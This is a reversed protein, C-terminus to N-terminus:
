KLVFWTFYILIWENCLEGKVQSWSESTSWWSFIWWIYLSSAFMSIPCMNVSCFMCFQARHRCITWGLRMLHAKTKKVPNNPFKEWIGGVVGVGRDTFLYAELHISHQCPWWIPKGNGFKSSWYLDGQVLFAWQVGWPCGRQWIEFGREPKVSIKIQMKFLNSGLM